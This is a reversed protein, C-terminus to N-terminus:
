ILVIGNQQDKMMLSTVGFQNELVNLIHISEGENLKRTCVCIILKDDEHDCSLLTKSIDALRYAVPESQALTSPLEIRAVAAGGDAECSIHMLRDPVGKPILTEAVMSALFVDVNMSLLRKRLTSNNVRFNEVFSM